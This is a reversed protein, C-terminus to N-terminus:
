RETFVSADGDGHLQFFTWTESKSGGMGPSGAPMGPLSLGHADPATSLFEAIVDEPVHGVVLSGDLEVVHCSWRDRDIGQESMFSAMDDRTVTELDTELHGDLYTAYEGCCSCQPGQYLTATEVAALPDGTVTGAGATDGVAAEDAGADITGDSTSEEGGDLCGALGVAVAAAGGRLVARRTRVNM